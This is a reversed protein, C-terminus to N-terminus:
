SNCDHWGHETLGWRHQKSAASMKCADLSVRSFMWERQNGECYSLAWCLKEKREAERENRLM